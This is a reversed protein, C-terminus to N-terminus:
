FLFVQDELKSVTRPAPYGLEKLHGKMANMMPPPGCMLVKHGEGHNPSGVGGHPMHQEIMEKTIFGVGGTWNAPPKNLVHYLTFRGGSKKELDELDKRLLIDDEEVNAYILSLKTKDNPNKLSSKIIQYMPTIGTGGSIMLLAPALHATYHFKGKPGKVKVDQGITLLSLYRSINGKEYTKVVLDFHGKDDDLTTPTYSRVVQKGDIEAAVSIHQGVPLGLSDTARPLAFKYLATNHSLHDKAVLKFSRWEVPDLVKRNKSGSNILYSIALILILLATGAPQAYPQYKQALAEFDVAM